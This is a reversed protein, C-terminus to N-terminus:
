TAGFQLLTSEVCTGGGLGEKAPQERVIQKWAVRNPVERSWILSFKTRNSSHCLKEPVAVHQLVIERFHM